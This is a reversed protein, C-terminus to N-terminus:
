SKQEVVEPTSSRGGARVPERAPENHDCLKAYLSIRSYFSLTACYMNYKKVFQQPTMFGNRVKMYDSLEDSLDVSEPSLFASDPFNTEVESKDYHHKQPDNEHTLYQLIHNKPLILKKILNEPINLDEAIAHFSRPNPFELVFHWHIDTNDKDHRIFAYHQQYKSYEIISQIDNKDEQLSM